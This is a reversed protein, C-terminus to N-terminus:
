SSICVQPPFVPRSQEFASSARPPGSVSDDVTQLDFARESASTEPPAPSFPPSDMPENAENEVGTTVEPPEYVDDVSENGSESPDPEHSSDIHIIDQIGQSESSGERSFGQSDDEMSSKPRVPEPSTSECDRDSVEANVNPSDEVPSDDLSMAADDGSDLEDQPQEHLTAGHSDAEFDEGSDFYHNEQQGDHLVMRDSDVQGEEAGSDSSSLIHIVERNSELSAISDSNDVGDQELMDPLDQGSHLDDIGHLPTSNSL